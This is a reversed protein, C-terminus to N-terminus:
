KESDINAVQWPKHIHRYKPDVFQKNSVWFDKHAHEGLVAGWTWVEGDRTVAIGVDQGGAAFAAIDKHLELKRFVLSKYQNATKVARYESADLSWLSGDKKRLLLYYIGQGSSISEWDNATGIQAPTLGSPDRDPAYIKARYGWTWLTGDTKLAIIAYYGFGVDAWNTDATVRTPVLFKTDKDDLLWGWFWLSGDAQLGVTQAGSGWIKTWNTSSGVQIASESKQTSGIGLQGEGNNGWAWLTGDNKLGFSSSGTAAQKWDNGPISAVPTSRSQKTGDGLQYHLNQGWGWLTGDAKIALCASDGVAVSRWDSDHGIRRLSVSHDLKPNSSGLVPWGLAEEGWSWLSGDSALIVVYRDYGYGVM